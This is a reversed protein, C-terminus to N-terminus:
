PKAPAADVAPKVTNDASADQSAEKSYARWGGIQGVTDNAQKWNVIKEDTYSQYGEFASRYSPLTATPMAATAVAPSLAAANNQAVAPMTWLLVALLIVVAPLQSDLHTSM